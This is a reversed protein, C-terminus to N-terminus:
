SGGYVSYYDYLFGGVFEGGFILAAAGGEVFQIVDGAGASGVSWLTELVAYGILEGSSLTNMLGNATDYAINELDVTIGEINRSAIDQSLNPMDLAVSAIVTAAAMEFINNEGGLAVIAAPGLFALAVGLIGTVLQTIHAPLWLSEFYQGIGMKSSTNPSQGPNQPQTQGSVPPPPNPSTGPVLANRTTKEYSPQVTPPPAPPQPHPIYSIVGGGPIAIVNGSPDNFTMPNDEVYSYRNLSLPSDISGTVADETIFRGISPDYFRVRRPYPSLMSVM